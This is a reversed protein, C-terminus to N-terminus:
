LKILQILEQFIFASTQERIVQRKGNFKKQYTYTKGRVEIAIFVSGVQLNHYTKPGAIGSVAVMIDAHSFRHLGQVMETVADLSYVSKSDITTKSVHLIDMKAQDSYLVFSEKLVKSADEVSTILSALLGGTMSEAFVITLQKEILGNVLQKAYEYLKSANHNM